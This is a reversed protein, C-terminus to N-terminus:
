APKTGIVVWPYVADGLSGESVDVFGADRAAQSWDMTAAERWYPEGGKNALADARWAGLRDLKRYPTVDSMLMQGGPELLRFAEAFTARIAQAPMEHLIIYSAVLDFRGAEFGTDEAAAQHLDWRWGNANAVRLAERLMPLALEVGTIHADPFTEQLATTFHGSSTGMECIRTYDARPLLGLVARRQAFIDGGFNRAVYTKHILESHIFGMEDHGNWGGTTRHFWVGKYYDPPVFDQRVTLTAPGKQELAALEPVLVDAMEDFATRAVRGHEVSAFEMVLNSISFANSGALASNIMDHRRDIDEPLADATVGAELLATGWQVALPRSAATIGVMFDMAARGGQRMAVGM